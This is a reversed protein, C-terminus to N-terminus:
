SARSRRRQFPVSQVIGLVLSSWRYESAAAERLIQRIAPADYYEAQRGMAYTLLKGTATRLFQEKNAVLAKRFEVVGDFKTGDPLIGSADIPVDKAGFTSTTRWKGLADFNELAFGIPDMIRHCVACAPNARHQEMMQRMTLPKGDKSKEELAPVNPPPPPPPTGLFNELVWKGRVVPSTRNAYSTVTLISGKGLLGSRAQDTLAVRRFRSGVIDPIGYHRALRQNVFTYDANLLDLVSRDERVISEFFLNTEKQLAVRLEEDFDPFERPDPSVQALNRLSLWQGAFNEVLSKSRPDALMRRVQQELVAPDQIQGQEAVDLLEDDPISSWLFFSLRSALEVDSVRYVTDPPANEPDREVRFLFEPGALIRQLATEIGTEFGGEGQGERYLNLLAELDADKVPRRYARRALTSLIKRACPEAEAMTSPACIFIKQRSLTEGSGAANYPGTITVSAVAPEGGRYQDLDDYLLPPMYPGEPKTTQKLFAIGVSHTGATAPFRVELEADASFEYDIQAPDGRYDPDNRSFIPGSRGKFVGGVTLLKIRERDLRVDLPHPERLGRIYGDNNRHLRINIVYEGDLPFHHRVAMGGRSGFPLDESARDQQTFREPLEYMKSVPRISPDGVALRSIKGAALMYREMLVPSVSLVEAINDFGSSSNDPPLLETGDVELGLLDRIANGYEARNLRHALPRGPDPHAAATRDLETELYTVFGDYAAKQPRPVGAPPMQGARLKRVVKEWVEADSGVNDVNLTDLTLDATRLRENHCTACYRNVLARHPSESATAPSSTEQGQSLLANSGMLAVAILALVARSM